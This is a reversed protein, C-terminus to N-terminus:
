SSFFISFYGFLHFSWSVQKVILEGFTLFFCEDAYLNMQCSYSVWAFKMQILIKKVTFYQHFILGILAAFLSSVHLDNLWCHWSQFVFNVPLTLWEILQVVTAWPLIYFIMCFFHLFFKCWIILTLNLLGCRLLFDLGTLIERQRCFLSVNIPLSIVIM